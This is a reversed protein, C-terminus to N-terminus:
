RRFAASLRRFALAQSCAGLTLLNPLRATKAESLALAFLWPFLTLTRVVLSKQLGPLTERVCIECLWFIGWLIGAAAILLAMAVLIRRLFLKVSALRRKRRLQNIEINSDGGHM